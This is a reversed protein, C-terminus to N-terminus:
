SIVWAFMRDVTNAKPSINQIIDKELKMALDLESSANELVSVFARTKDYYQINDPIAKDM